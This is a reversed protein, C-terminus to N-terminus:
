LSAIYNIQTFRVVYSLNHTQFLFLDNALKKVTAHINVRYGDGNVPLLQAFVQRGDDIARQIFLQRQEVPQQHLLVPELPVQPAQEFLKRLRGSIKQPADRFITQEIQM